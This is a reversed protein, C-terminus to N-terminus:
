YSKQWINEALVLRVGYLQLKKLQFLSGHPELRTHIRAPFFKKSPNFSGGRIAPMAYWIFILGGKLWSYM